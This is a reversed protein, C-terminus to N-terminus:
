MMLVLRYGGIGLEKRVPCEVESMVLVRMLHNGEAMWVKGVM